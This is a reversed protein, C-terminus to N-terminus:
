KECVVKIRTGPKLFSATSSGPVAIELRQGSNWLAVPNKQHGYTSGPTGTKKTGAAVYSKRWFGEAADSRKINSVANGFHDLYVVEGCISNKTKQVPLAKLRVYSSTRPGLDKFCASQRSLAAAAPAFWDRGHFTASIPKLAYKQNTLSRIERAPEAELVDTLLGNDPALFVYSQTKVCLMRRGTGVGPDVVCVFISGNPFCRFSDELYFSAQRINQAAIGHTLDFVHTEPSISAIVGHLIGAYPDQLGYDTLLVIPPKM